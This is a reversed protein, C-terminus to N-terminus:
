PRAKTSQWAAPLVITDVYINRQVLENPEDTDPGKFMEFERLRIRLRGRTEPLTFPPLQGGATRTLRGGSVPRWAPIQPDANLDDIVLDLTEPDIGPDCTELVADLGNLPNPSTGEVTVLVTNDSRDVVVRRDPLLPVKGTLVIPSLELGDLSNPQYRAVALQVFPNYSPSGDLIALEIDAYWNEGNPRLNFPVLAVEAGAEASMLISAAAAPTRFLEPRPHLPTEPTGFLPDRGIKTVLHSSTAPSDPSPAVVIALQEGEGTEFWPRAVVVRLRQGQRTHELRDAGPQTRRWRFTPSVGSITPATPRTSSLINVPTQALSVQFATDHETSKFYERFRSSANLTYTVIRHKTDGFEHRVQLQPPAGRAITESHLHPVTVAHTHIDAQPGVDEVETWTATVDIRGTSDTNLGAGTAVPTFTPELLATTDHPHRGVRSDPLNWMPEALPRKVAHVVQIKRTPTVAANRGLKTNELSETPTDPLNLLDIMALHDEMGSRITSSLEITAQEAKALTVRLTDGVWALKVPVTPDDHAALEIAKPTADPWDPSWRIRRSESTVLGGPEAPVYANVGEVVPDPLGSDAAKAHMARQALEWTRRHDTEDDFMGHQEVLTLSLSPPLVERTEARPYEPETAHLQDVTMDHDSRIVLRDIASGPGFQTLARVVPPAVQEHRRYTVSTSAAQEGEIDDLDLGGGTMDAIRVRMQYREAFRLAPLRGRPMRFDWLFTYPLPRTPDNIPGPTDGRLNPMPLALSWGDWRLIVEDSRLQGDEGKVATYAKVHTEELQHKGRYEAAGIPIENVSYTADRECLSHWSADGRRVDVRYGLILDDASLVTDAMSTAARKRATRARRDFDARRGPRMLAIGTSRIEPITARISPNAAIDHATQRLKGVVGDVDFTALAWQTSDPQAIPSTISSSDRLDLMGHKIQSTSEPSPAPRFVSETLDYRTWPPTVLHQLFPPDVCRVSLMGADNPTSIKLDSVEVLIEFVLGLDILVTPHERLIAVTRHFDPATYALPENFESPSPAPPEPTVWETLASRIVADADAGSKAVARTVMSYTTIASTADQYTPSVVPAPYTKPEWENTLGADGGFFAGWIESRARPLYQPRHTAIREGLATRTRLEFTAENTLVDPWDQLGADRISGAALRPVVLIRISAKSPARLGNPVAVWLMESSM